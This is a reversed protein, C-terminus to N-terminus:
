NKLLGVPTLVALSYKFGKGLCKHYRFKQSFSGLPVFVDFKVYFQKANFLWVLGSNQKFTELDLKINMGDETFISPGM